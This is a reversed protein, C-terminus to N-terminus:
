KKGKRETVTVAWKKKCAECEWTMANFARVEDANCYLCRPPKQEGTAKM